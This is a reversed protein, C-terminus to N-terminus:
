PVLIRRHARRGARTGSAAWGADRRTWQGDGDARRAGVRRRRGASGARHRRGVGGQAGDLRARARALRRRTRRAISRLQTKRTVRVLRTPVGDARRVGLRVSARGPNRAEPRSRAACRDLRHAAVTTHARAGVRAGLRVPARRCQARGQRHGPQPRHLAGPRAPVSRVRGAEVRLARSVALRRPPAPSQVLARLLERNAANGGVTRWAPEARAPPLPDGDRLVRPDGAQGRASPARVAGPVRASGRTGRVRHAARHRPEDRSAM